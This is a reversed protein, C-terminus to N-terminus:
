VHKRVYIFDTIVFFMCKSKKFLPLRETIAWLSHPYDQMIYSIGKHSSHCRWRASILQPGKLSGPENHKSHGHLANLWGYAGLHASRVPQNTTVERHPLARISFPVCLFHSSRTTNHLFFTESENSTWLSFWIRLVNTKWHLYKNNKRQIQLLFNIGWIILM